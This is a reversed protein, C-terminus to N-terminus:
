FAGNPKSTKFISKSKNKKVRLTTEDYEPSFDEISFGYNKNGSNDNFVEVDNKENVINILLNKDSEDENTINGDLSFPINNNLTNIENEIFKGNLGFKPLVPYYYNDNWEQESSNDITVIFYKTPIEFVMNGNFSMAGSKSVGNENYNTQDPNDEMYNYIGQADYYVNIDDHTSDGSTNFFTDFLEGNIQISNVYLNRDYTETEGEFYYDNDFNIKIEQIDLSRDIPINFDYSKTSGVGGGTEANTIFGDYYTVGNVIINYHPPTGDEGDQRGQMRVTLENLLGSRNSIPFYDPIINKWYRPEDPKGVEDFDYKEFGFMEWISKPKNYYKISTLDVDGISKGLEEKIPSIGNYIKLGQNDFREIMYNPLVELDDNSQNEMKLLALETKLKDSKNKFEISIKENNLFGIQRKTKKYYNSQNSIGGIIPTTNKYPIFSYGDSGFYQFDEDNGENINIRLKFKKNYAVGIIKDDRDTKVRLMTGTVEFVGNSEYTHYLATNEDIQEPKSTFENITGDGWDIDYIYFRGMKFDQYIPLREVFIEDTPYQPYFYFQAELPATSDKYENTGNPGHIISDYYKTLDAKGFNDVSIKKRVDVEPIFEYSEYCEIDDILVRGIFNNGSQLFLALNGIGDTPFEIENDIYQDIGTIGDSDGNSYLRAIIFCENTPQFQNSPNYGSNADYSWREGDWYACVMDPYEARFTNSDDGTSDEEGGYTLSSNVEETGITAGTFMLYAELFKGDKQLGTTQNVGGGSDGLGTAVVMYDDTNPEGHRLIVSDQASNSANDDGRPVGEPPILYLHRQMNGVDEQYNTGIKFFIEGSGAGGTTPTNGEFNTNIMIEVPNDGNASDNFTGGYPVGYIKGRNNHDNTLNYTFEFTEWENIVSNQFRSMGGIESSAKNEYNSGNFYRESNWGGPAKFVAEGDFGVKNDWDTGSNEFRGIGNVGAKPIEEFQSQLIGVEVMPAYGLSEDLPNEVFLLKDEENTIENDPPWVHTTKMKFRIKVSSYPNLPEDNFKDYIKQVQNLVRYQNYPIMDGALFPPNYTSEGNQHFDEPLLWNFIYKEDVSECDTYNYVGVENWIQFNMFQLCKKNSYAEDTVVWAAIHPIERETEKEMLRYVSRLGALNLDADPGRSVRDNIHDQTTTSQGQVILIWSLGVEGSTLPETSTVNGWYNFRDSGSVELSLPVYAYRGGHATFGQEDGDTYLEEWVPYTDRLSLYRWEGEPKVIVPMFGTDPDEYYAKEVFKCDGNNVMNTKTIGIFPPGLVNPFNNSALNDDDFSFMGLEIRGDQNSDELAQNTNQFITTDIDMGSYPDFTNLLTQEITIGPVGFESSVEEQLFTTESTTTSQTTLEVENSSGPIGDWIQVTEGATHAAQSTGEQARYVGLYYYDTTGEEYQSTITKYIKIIEDGVKLYWGNWRDELPTEIDFFSSNIWKYTTHNSWSSGPPKIMLTNDSDYTNIAMIGWWHNYDGPNGDQPGVLTSTHILNAM